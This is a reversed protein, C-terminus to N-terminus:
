VRGLSPTRGALLLTIVEDRLHQDTMMSGDEDRALFLLTLLDKVAGDAGEKIKERGRSILEFVIADLQRVARLYRTRTLTPIRLYGTVAHIGSSGRMIVDLAQEIM